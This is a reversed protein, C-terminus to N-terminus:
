AAPLLPLGPFVHLLQQVSRPRGAPKTLAPKSLLM